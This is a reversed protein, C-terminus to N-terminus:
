KIEEIEYEEAEEAVRERYEESDGGGDEGGAFENKRLYAVGGVASGLLLIVLLFFFNDKLFDDRKNLVLKESRSSELAGIFDARQKEGFSKTEVRNEDEKKTGSSVPFTKKVPKKVAAVPVKKPVSIPDPKKMPEEKEAEGSQLDGGSKEKESYDFEMFKERNPLLLQVRSRKSENNFIRLGTINNPFILEGGKDIFTKEPILFHEGDAFLMWDELNLIHDSNNKVKIYGMEGRKSEKVEVIEIPPEIVEVKLRTEGTFHGSKVTLNVIYSGPFFYSHHVRQGYDKKGDGFNWYFDIGSIEAGSLGYARGYFAIRAGAM